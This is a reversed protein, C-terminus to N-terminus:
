APPRLLRFAPVGRALCAKDLSLSMGSGKGLSSMHTARTPDGEPSAALASPGRVTHAPKAFNFV